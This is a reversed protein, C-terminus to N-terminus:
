SELMTNILQREGIHSLAADFLERQRSAPVNPLIIVLGAHVAEKGYLRLFDVRNNTVLAYEAARIRKMLEWDKCGGLGLFNVHDCVHGAEHAVGVLSTHLCEDILFKM